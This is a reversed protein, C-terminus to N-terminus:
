SKYLLSHDASMSFSFTRVTRSSTLAVAGLM